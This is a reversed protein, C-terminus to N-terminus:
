LLHHINVLSVTTTREYGLDTSDNVSGTPFKVRQQTAFVDGYFQSFFFFFAIGVSLSFRLAFSQFLFSSDISRVQCM